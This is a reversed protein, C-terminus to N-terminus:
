AEHVLRGEFFTRLVQTEHLKGPEATFLDRDLVIFDASYGTRLIGTTEGLGMAQAPNCTFAAIAQEVTLAENGNLRGTVAPDPNSRTVLTALGTWPDPTPAACPWDSGCSVLAGSDMLRRLPWSRDFTEAPVQKKMSEQMVSPFWLYPSADPVVDLEAFRPLDDDHVFEVHAIHFKADWGRMRRVEEVADLILRVAGDGTAHLKANLGRDVLALLSTTLEDADWLTEGTFNPDDDAHNCRYPHILAATRTMPVGDLVYKAFTPHVHRSHSEDGVRYLEEGNIGEELFPRSPMSAVVHATLGGAEDIDHLTRLAYDMTASEQVATIGYSNLTRVATTFAEAHFGEVDGITDMVAAEAPGCALETLVGNLRGEQDRVYSGGEPSPSSEDIGLIEFAASNVWRNHMTDDRLLVPHDGAADDLAALDHHTLDDMVTSGVIGGVIWEGPELRERWARVKGAIEAVGDSPLVPMEFALQRGGLGLHAHVDVLGPMAFNGDLDIVQTEATSMARVEVDSGLASIRGGSVAFAEVFPCEPDGTFIRGNIVLIEPM